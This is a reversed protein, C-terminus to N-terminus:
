KRRPLKVDTPAHAIQKEHIREDIRELGKHQKKYQADRMEVYYGHSKKSFSM